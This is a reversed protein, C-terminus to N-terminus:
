TKGKRKERLILFVGLGVIAIPLLNAMNQTTAFSQVQSPLSAQLRALASQQELAREQQGKASVSTVISQTVPTLAEFMDSLGSTFSKWDFSTAPTKTPQKPIEITEGMYAIM